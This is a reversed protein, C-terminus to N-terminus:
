VTKTIVRVSYYDGQREGQKNTRFGHAFWRRGRLYARLHAKEFNREATNKFGTLKGGFGARVQKQKEVSM